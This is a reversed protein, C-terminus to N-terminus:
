DYDEFNLHCIEHERGDIWFTLRWNRTVYLSWTGKRDGTLVHAKQAPLSPFEDAHELDQISALMKRVKDVV